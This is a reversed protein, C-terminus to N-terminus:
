DEEELKLLQLAIPRFKSSSAIAERLKDKTWSKRITIEHQMALDLLQQKELGHLLPQAICDAQDRVRQRENFASKQKSNEIESLIANVSHINWSLGEGFASQTSQSQKHWWQLFDDLEHRYGQTVYLQSNPSRGYVPIKPEVPSSVRMEIYQAIYKSLGLEEIAQPINRAVIYSLGDAYFRTDKFIDALIRDIEGVWYWNESESEVLHWSVNSSISNIAASPVKALNIGVWLESSGEKYFHCVGTTVEEFPEQGQPYPILNQEWSLLSTKKELLARILLQSRPVEFVWGRNLRPNKSDDLILKETHLSAAQIQKFLDSDDLFRTLQLLITEKKWACLKFARPEFKELLEIFAATKRHHKRSNALAKQDALAEDSNTILDYFEWSNRAAIKQSFSRVIDVCDVPFSVHYPNHWERDDNSLANIESKLEEDWDFQLHIRDSQQKLIIQQLLKSSRM